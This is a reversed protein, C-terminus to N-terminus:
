SASELMFTIFPDGETGTPESRIIRFGAERFMRAMHDAGRGVFRVTSVARERSERCDFALTAVHLSHPTDGPRWRYRCRFVEGGHRNEVVTSPFGQAAAAPWDRINTLLYGGTKLVAKMGHLSTRLYDDYSGDDIGDPATYIAHAALVADFRRHWDAIGALDAFSSRRFRDTPLGYAATRTRAVRLLSESFDSGFATWPGARGVAPIGRHLALVDNGVGCCADLVAAGSPIDLMWRNMADDGLRDGREREPSLLALYLRGIHQYADDM